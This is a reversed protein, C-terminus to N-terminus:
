WQCVFMVNTYESLLLPSESPLWFVEIGGRSGCNLVERKLLGTQLWHISKVASFLAGDDGVISVSAVYDRTAPLPQGVLASKLLCSINGELWRRWPSIHCWLGTTLFCSSSHQYSLSHSDWGFPNKTTKKLFSCYMTCMVVHCLAQIFSLFWCMKQFYARWAKWSGSTPQVNHFALLIM